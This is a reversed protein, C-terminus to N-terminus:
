DYVIAEASRSRSSRQEHCIAMDHANLANPKIRYSGGDVELRIDYQDIDLRL